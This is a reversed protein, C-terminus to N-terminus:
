CLPCNDRLWNEVRTIFNPNRTRLNRKYGSSFPGRRVRWVGRGVGLARGYLGLRLRKEAEGAWAGAFGEAEDLADAEQDLLTAEVRRSDAGESEGVLRRALDGRAERAIQARVSFLDFPSRDVGEAGLQQALEAFVDPELGAKPDGVLFILQEDEAANFAVPLPV